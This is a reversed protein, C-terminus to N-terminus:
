RYCVTERGPSVATFLVRRVSIDANCNGVSVTGTVAPKQMAVMPVLVLQAVALMTAFGLVWAHLLQMLRGQVRLLEVWIYGIWMPVAIWIFSMFLITRLNM